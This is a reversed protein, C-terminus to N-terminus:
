MKLLLYMSKNVFAEDCNFAKNSDYEGEQIERELSLPNGAVTHDLWAPGDRYAEPASSSSSSSSSSLACDREAPQAPCVFPRKVKLM